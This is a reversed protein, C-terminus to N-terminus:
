AAALSERQCFRVLAALKKERNRTASFAEGALFRYLRESGLLAVDPLALSLKHLLLLATKREHSYFDYDQGDLSVAMAETCGELLVRKQPGYAAKRSYGDGQLSHIMEHLVIHERREDGHAPLFILESTPDWLGHVRSPTDFLALSWGDGPLLYVDAPSFASLEQLSSRASPARYSKGAETALLLLLLEASLSSNRERMGGRLFFGREGRLLADRGRKQIREAAAQLIADSTQLTALLSYALTTGPRSLVTKQGARPLAAYFDTDQLEAAAARQAIQRDRRSLQHFRALFEIDHSM